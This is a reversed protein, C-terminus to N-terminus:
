EEFVIKDIREAADAFEGMKEPLEEMKKRYLAAHEEDGAAEFARLLTAAEYYEAVARLALETETYKRGIEADDYSDALLQAYNDYTCARILDDEEAHYSYWTLHDNYEHIGMIVTIILTFSLFAIAAALLIGGVTRKKKPPATYKWPSRPAPRFNM